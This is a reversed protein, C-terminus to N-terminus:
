RGPLFPGSLGGICPSRKGLRKLCAQCRDLEPHPHQRSATLLRSFTTVDLGDGPQPNFQITQPTTLLNAPPIARRVTLLTQRLNHRAAADPQEPWFIGALTERRHSQDAEVALYALLAQGKLSTLRTIQQGNVRVQLPGFLSLQLTPM